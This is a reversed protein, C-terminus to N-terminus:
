YAVESCSIEFLKANAHVSRRKRWSLTAIEHDTVVEGQVLISILQQTSKWDTVNQADGRSAYGDCLQSKRGVPFSQNFKTAATFPDVDQTSSLVLSALEAGILESGMKHAEDWRVRHFSSKPHRKAYMAEKLQDKRRLRGDLRYHHPGDVELLAVIEGNKTIAADLPFVGDFSSVELSIEYKSNLESATFADKLSKVVRKQLRSGQVSTMDVQGDGSQLFRSPIKRPDTVYKMVKLYHTFIRIQELEQENMLKALAVGEVLAADTKRITNLM